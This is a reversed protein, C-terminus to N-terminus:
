SAEAKTRPVRFLEKDIEPWSMTYILCSGSNMLEKKTSGPRPEHCVFGNMEIEMSHKTDMWYFVLILSWSLQRFSNWRKRNITVSVGQHDSFKRKKIFIGPTIDHTDHLYKPLLIHDINQPLTATSRELKCASCLERLQTTTAQNIELKEAASFSTNLDGALCLSNTQKAISM